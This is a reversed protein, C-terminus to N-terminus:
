SRPGSAPRTPPWTTLLLDGDGGTPETALGNGFRGNGVGGVAVRHVRLRPEPGRGRHDQGRRGADVLEGPNMLYGADGVMAFVERGPDALRIGIAGPIEYGMCSNGYELHFQKPDRTRWLKHLDAPM